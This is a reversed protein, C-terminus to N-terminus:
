LSVTGNRLDIARARNLLMARARELSQRRPASLRKGAYAIYVGLIRLGDAPGAPFLERSSLIEAIIAPPKTFIGTLPGSFRWTM